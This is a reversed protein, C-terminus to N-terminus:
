RRGRLRAFTLSVEDDDNGDGEGPGGTHSPPLRPTGVMIKCARPKDVREKLGRGVRCEASVHVAEEGSRGGGRRPQSTERLLAVEVKVLHKEEEPM